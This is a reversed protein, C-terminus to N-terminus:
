KDLRRSVALMCCYLSTLSFPSFGVLFYWNKGSITYKIFVESLTQRGILRAEVNMDILVGFWDLLLHPMLASLPSLFLITSGCFIVTCELCKEICTDSMM